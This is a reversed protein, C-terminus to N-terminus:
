AYVKELAGLKEDAVEVVEFNEESELLAKTLLHNLHHSGAFAEYNGVFAMGILSM